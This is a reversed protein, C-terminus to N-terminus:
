LTSLSTRVRQSPPPLPLPTAFTNDVILPIGRAHATDALQRIDAVDLTPNGITEAFVAKTKDTIAQGLSEPDKLDFFRVTIGFSPLIERFMTHTGGYLSRSSAIEDGQSCINIIAYYIANTGSALAVAAAGEELVAMRQELIDQTPTEWGPTSIVWNRWTSSGPPM